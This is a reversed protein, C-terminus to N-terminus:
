WEMEKTLNMFWNIDRRKSGNNCEFLLRNENM